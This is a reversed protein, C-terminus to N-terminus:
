WQRAQLSRALERILADEIGLGDIEQDHETEPEPIPTKARPTVNAATADSRTAEHPGPWTAFRDELLDLLSTLAANTVDVESAEPAGDLALRRCRYPPESSVESGFWALPPVDQSDEPRITLAALDLPGPRLFHLVQIEHSGISFRTRLYEAQGQCVALLAQAHALPVDAQEEPAGGADAELILSSRPEEIRVFTRRQPQDPFYGELVRESGREKRILRAVSPAIIFLRHACVLTAEKIPNHCAEVRGEVYLVVKLSFASTEWGATWLGAFPLAGCLPAGFNWPSGTGLRELMSWVLIGSPHLEPQASFPVPMPLHM